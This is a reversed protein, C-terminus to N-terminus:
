LECRGGKKLEKLLIEPNALLVERSEDDLKDLVVFAKIQEEPDLKAVAKEMRAQQGANLKKLSLALKSKKYIQSLGSFGVHGVGFGILGTMQQTTMDKVLESEKGRILELEKQNVENKTLAAVVNGQDNLDNYKGLSDAFNVAAAGSAGWGAVVATPCGIVQGIGTPTICLLLGGMSAVGMGMITSDDIPPNAKRCECLKKFVKDPAVSSNIARQASQSHLTLIECERFSDIKSLAGLQSALSKQLDDKLHTRIEEKTGETAPKFGRIGSVALSKSSLESTSIDSLKAPTDNFLFNDLLRSDDSTEQTFAQKENLRPLAFEKLKMFNHQTILPYRVEMLKVREDIKKKDIESLGFNEKRRKLDYYRLSAIFYKDLLEPNLEQSSRTAKIGSSELKKLRDSLVSNNDKIGMKQLLGLSLTVQSEAMTLVERKIEDTALHIDIDEVNKDLSNYSNKEPIQCIPKLNNEELSQECAKSEGRVDDLTYPTQAHIKEMGFLSLFLILFHLGNFCKM